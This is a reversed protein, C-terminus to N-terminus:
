FIDVKEEISTHDKEVKWAFLTETWHEIGLYYRKIDFDIRNPDDCLWSRLAIRKWFDVDAHIYIHYGKYTRYIECEVDRCIYRVRALCIERTLSDLNVLDLDVTIM